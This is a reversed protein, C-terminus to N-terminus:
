RTRGPRGVRKGAACDPVTGSNAMDRALKPNAPVDQWDPPPTCDDGSQNFDGLPGIAASIEDSTADPDCLVAMGNAIIGAPAPTGFVCENFMAALVHQALTPRNSGATNWFIAEADDPGASCDGGCPEFVIRGDVLVGADDLCQYADLLKSPHTFWYGPTRTCGGQVTVQCTDTATPPEPVIVNPLTSGHITATATATNSIAPADGVVVLRSNTLTQCNGAAVTVTQDIDAVPDVVHIDLSVDGTNCVEIDWTITGGVTVPDPSCAKTLTFAPHLLDVSASDNCTLLNSAAGVANATVTMTNVLPDPDGPQVTYNYSHCESAGPALSDAFDGSKNGLLTDSVTINELTVPGCNIVCLTYEVQDGAKSVNPTVTKECQLCPTVVTVCCEDGCTEQNGPFGQPNWNVTVANCLPGGPHEIPVTYPYTHCIQAGPAIPGAFDASKDGLLTDVVSINTMAVDGTNHVCIEYSIQGGPPVTAPLCSKSVECSPHVLDVTAQSTCELQNQAAGVPNAHVTLTNVLPDPDGPQVTRPYSHCESGGPALTNAFDGSKDGLLSDVVTINELTVQGTNSVCLEYNVVHGAKSQTPDATKDCDLGVPLVEVSCEDGCSENNEPFGAPNWTVTVANNIMGPPQGNPVNYNYTHCIQAGPAIPGAFDASKDGLLTDVVSINTMAVDGTNHVCIEYSIQGGPPVTAPLCSKSVECGPHVLDVTASDEDTVQTPSVTGPPPIDQATVTVTNVLPDPDGPQVTYPFTHCESGGAPLSDAFSGSLDGLLTDSVTINTLTGALGCGSTNTVCIEYNVVHGAKSQTPNATKTVQIDPQLVTVINTAVAAAFNSTPPVTIPHACAQVGPVLLCVGPNPTAPRALTNASADDFFPGATAGAALFAITRVLIATAGPACDLTSSPGFGPQSGDPAPEYFFLNINELDCTGTNTVSVGYPVVDGPHVTTNPGISVGVGAFCSPSSLEDQAMAVGLLGLLM